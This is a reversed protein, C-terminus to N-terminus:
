GPYFLEFDQAFRRRIMQEIKPTLEGNADEGANSRRNKHPLPGLDTQCRMRVEYCVHEWDSELHEVRGVFHPLLRGNQTLIPKRAYTSIAASM